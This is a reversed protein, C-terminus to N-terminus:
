FRAEIGMGLERPDGATGLDRSFLNTMYFADFINRAYGFLRISRFQWEVQADFRTWGAIRRSPTNAEDSWYGSNHRVAASFRLPEIPRWEVSGTASFHPSRLFENGEFSEHGADSSVIRSNLFGLGLKTSFRRSARWNLEAEVGFTRAKPVNFLDALGVGRVIYTQIRQANRMDYYFLNATATVAGDAFSARAFLEYDWLTEPDFTDVAPIDPRLSVGGPNYARQALIGGGFSPSFDYALSLKPLWAHFRRDYDLDIVSNASQLTGTRM